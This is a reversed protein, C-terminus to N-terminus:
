AGWHAAFAPASPESQLSADRSQRPAGHCPGEGWEAMGDLTMLSFKAHGDGAKDAIFEVGELDISEAGVSFVPAANNGAAAAM